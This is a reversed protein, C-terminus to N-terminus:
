CCCLGIGTKGAYGGVPPNRDGADPGFLRTKRFYLKLRINRNTREKCARGDNPFSMSIYENKSGAAQERESAPIRSSPGSLSDIERM